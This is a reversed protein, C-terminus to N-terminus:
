ATRIFDLVKARIQDRVKRVMAFKESDTGPLSAPDRFDWHFRKAKGPFVPCKEAVKADCVTIVYDFAGGGKQMDFVSKAKHGSIDIGEEAMAKVALPSLTGPEIGASQAIFGSKGYASLYGEAMQSRASNHNCIFLVRKPERPDAM